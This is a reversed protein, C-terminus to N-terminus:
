NWDLGFDHLRNRFANWDLLRGALEGQVQLALQSGDQSFELSSISNKMRALRCMRTAPQSRVSWLDIDGSHFGVALIGNPCTALATIEATGNTVVAIRETALDIALLHGEQAGVYAVTETSNLAVVKPITDVTLDITSLLNCNVSDFVRLKHDDSVAVTRSNGCVIEEYGGVRLRMASESNQMTHVLSGDSVRKVQLRGIKNVNDGIWYLGADRSLEIASAHPLDEAEFRVGSLRLNGDAADWIAMGDSLQSLVTPPVKDIKGDLAIYLQEISTSNSPINALEIRGRESDTSNIMRSVQIFVDRQSFMGTLTIPLGTVPDSISTELSKPTSKWCEPLHLDYRLLRYNNAIWLAEGHRDFSVYNAGAGPIPLSIVERGSRTDLFLANEICTVALWDNTASLDMHRVYTSRTFPTREIVFEKATNFFNDQQVIRQNSALVLSKKNNLLRVVSPEFERGAASDSKSFDTLSFVDHEDGLAILRDGIVEMCMVAGTAQLSKIQQHTKADWIAINADRSGSIIWDRVPDYTLSFCWDDHAKWKATVQGSDLDLIQIWGSRCGIVLHNNGSLFQLARIGEVLGAAIKEPEVAPLLVEQLAREPWSGLVYLVYAEDGNDLTRTVNEGVVLRQGDPSWALGYPDIGTAVVSNLRLDFGDLTQLLLERLRMKESETPVNLLANRIDVENQWTWGLNREAIRTQIASALSYYNNLSERATAQRLTEDRSKGVSELYAVRTLYWTSAIMLIILSASLGLSSLFQVPNRHIWRRTKEIHTVPRAITPQGSLFRDIDALLESASAYRNAPTKELCRLCVSELDRPLDRVLAKPPTPEAHLVQQLTEATSSGIFPPRGTLMEYLTAGIGYVDVRVDVEGRNGHVQEPAMYAPTGLMEGSLSMTSQDMTRALGFDTVKIERSASLLVNSPKIDRHLFGAAHAAEIASTIDRAYLAARRPEIPRAAIENALSKGQMYEMVLFLKGLEEIVDHIQVVHPHKLLAVVHAEKLLRERGTSDVWAGAKLSKIAVERNLSLQLAKIVVGMGGIGLVCLPQFGYPAMSDTIAVTIDSPAKISGSQGGLRAPNASAGMQPALNAQPPPNSGTSPESFETLMQKGVAFQDRLVDAIEPFRELYEAESVAEDLQKRLWFESYVLDALARHDVRLQPHEDLVRELEHRQGAIWANWLRRVQQTTRAESAADEESSDM